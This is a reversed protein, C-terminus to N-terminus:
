FLLLLLLLMVRASNGERRGNGAEESWIVFLVILALIGL